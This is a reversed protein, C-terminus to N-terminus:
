CCPQRRARRSPPPPWLHELAAGAVSPKSDSALTRLRAVAAPDETEHLVDLAFARIRTPANTEEALALLHPTLGAPQCKGAIWLALYRQDPDSLPTLFPQLQPALGPHNLRDLQDWGIRYPEQDPASDLIARATRRRHEAPLAQLDALLLIYPDYELLDDFLTDDVAALRAAIEQHEPMIHRAQGTGAWLLAGHAAPEVATALYEAAM